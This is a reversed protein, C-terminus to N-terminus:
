FTTIARLINALKNLSGTALEYHRNKSKNLSNIDDMRLQTDQNIVKTANAINVTLRDWTPKEYAVPTLTGDIINETPRTLTKSREIPHFKNSGAPNGSTLTKDFMAIIRQETATYQTSSDYKVIPAKEPSYSAGLLPLKEIDDKDALKIPNYGRLTQNLMKQFQTYDQLLQNYQNLEESLAEAEAEDRYNNFTQLLFTMNPTDLKRGQYTGTTVIQQTSKALEFLRLEAGLLIDAAKNVSTQNDLSNVSYQFNPGHVTTFPGNTQASLDRYKALQNFRNLISLGKQEITDPHFVAMSDLDAMLYEFQQIFLYHYKARREAPDAEFYADKTAENPVGVFDAAARIVNTIYGNLVSKLTNRQTTADTTASNPVLGIRDAVVVRFEALGSLARQDAFPMKAIDAPQLHNLVYLRLGDQSRVVHLNKLPDADNGLRAYQVNFNVGNDTTVITGGRENLYEIQHFSHWNLFDTGTATTFNAPRDPLLNTTGNFRAFLAADDIGSQPNLTTVTTSTVQNLYPIAKADGPTPQIVPQAPVQNQTNWFDIPM